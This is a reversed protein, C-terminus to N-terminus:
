ANGCFDQRRVPKVALPLVTPGRRGPPTERQLVPEPFRECPMRQEEPTSSCDSFGRHRDGGLTHSHGAVGALTPSVGGQGPRLCVARGLLAKKKRWFSVGRGERCHGAEWEGAEGATWGLGLRGPSHAEAHPPPPPRRGCCVPGKKMGPPNGEGSVQHTLVVPGCM